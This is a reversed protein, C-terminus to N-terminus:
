RLETKGIYSGHALCVCVIQEAKDCVQDKDYIIHKM